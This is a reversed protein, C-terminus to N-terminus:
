NTARHQIYNYLVCDETRYLVTLYVVISQIQHFLSVSALTASSNYALHCTHKCKLRLFIQTCWRMGEFSTGSVPAKLATLWMCHFRACLCFNLKVCPCLSIPFHRRINITIRDKKWWRNEVELEERDRDRERSQPPLQQLPNHLNLYARKSNYILILSVWEWVSEMSQPFM